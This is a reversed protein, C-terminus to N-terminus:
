SDYINVAPSNLQKDSITILFQKTVDDFSLKQLQSTVTVTVGFVNVRREGYCEVEIFEFISPQM